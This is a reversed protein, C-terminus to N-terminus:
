QSEWIITWDAGHSDLLPSGNAVISRTNTLQTTDSHPREPRATGRSRASM